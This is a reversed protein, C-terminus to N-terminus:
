RFPINDFADMERKEEKTASKYVKCLKRGISRVIPNDAHMKDKEIMEDMKASLKCYMEVM